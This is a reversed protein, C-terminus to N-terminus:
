GLAISLGRFLLTNPETTTLVWQVWDRAFLGTWLDPNLHVLNHMGLTAVWMGALKCSMHTKSTMSFAIGFAFLVASAIGFDIAMQIDMDAQPDPLGNMHYMVYKALIISAIGLAFAMPYSLAQMLGGMRAKARKAPTRHTGQGAITNDAGAGIRQLRQQFIAQQNSMALACGQGTGNCTDQLPLAALIRSPGLM